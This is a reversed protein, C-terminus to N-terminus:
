RIRFTIKVLARVQVAEGNLITPSYKWQLVAARAAEVLLLHGSIVTLNTVNGEEDIIAELTVTGSTHTAIALRPYVPDVKLILRSEQVSSVVTVPSQPTRHVPPLPKDLKIQAIYKEIGKGGEPKQFAIGDPLPAVASSWAEEAEIPPQVYQIKGPIISPACDRCVTVEIPRHARGTAAVPPAPPTPREPL